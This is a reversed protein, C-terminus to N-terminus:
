DPRPRSFTLAVFLWGGAYATMLSLVLDVGLDGVLALQAPGSAGVSLDWSGAFALFLVTLYALVTSARRVLIGRDQVLLRLSMGVALAVGALVLFRPWGPRGSFISPNGATPNILHHGGLEAEVTFMVALLATSLGLGRSRIAMSIATLTLLLIMMKGLKWFAQWDDVVDGGEAGFAVAALVMDVVVASAATFRTVERASRTFRNPEFQASGPDHVM